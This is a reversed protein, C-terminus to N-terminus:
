ELIDKTNVGNFFGVNAEREGIVDGTADFIEEHHALLEDREKIFFDIASWINSRSISLCNTANNFEVTFSAVQEFTDTGKLIFEKLISTSHQINQGQMVRHNIM